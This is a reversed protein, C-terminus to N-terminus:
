ARRLVAITNRGTCYQRYRGTILPRMCPGSRGARVVGARSVTCAVVSRSPTRVNLRPDRELLIRVSLSCYPGVCEM